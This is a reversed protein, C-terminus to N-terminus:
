GEEGSAAPLSFVVRCGGGRGSVVEIAGGHNRLIAFAIALGMGTGRGEEKTSFFPDFVRGELGPSIGPGNDEVVAEALVEEGSPRLGVRVELRPGFEKGRSAIKEELADLGNVLLNLFVQQIEGFDGRVLCEEGSVRLDVGMKRARHEVFAAAKRAPELLPFVSPEVRRPAFELVRRVTAAIRELGEEVLELYERVEPDGSCREGVRRLANMIGGLPNNIEHAIGAALTGMAALRSSLLLQREKRKVEETARAVERELEERFSRVREITHNFVKALTEVESAGGKLNVVTKDDGSALRKAGEALKELPAVLSRSLALYLVLILFLTAGGLVGLPLLVDRHRIPPLKPVYYVAGIPRSDRPSLLVECRGNGLEVVGRTAIARRLGEEVAERDFGPPRHLAGLPNLYIQHPGLFTFAKNVIVADRFHERWQPWGLIKPVTLRAAGIGANLKAMVVQINKLHWNAVRLDYINEEERLLVLVLAGAAALNVALITLLVRIRLSM